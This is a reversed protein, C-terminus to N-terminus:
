VAAMIPIDWHGAMTLIKNIWKHEEVVAEGRKGYM